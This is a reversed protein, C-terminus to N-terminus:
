ISLVPIQGTWPELTPTDLISQIHANNHGHDYLETYREKKSAQDQARAYGYHLMFLGSSNLHTGKAVYTPESGCGMAKNGWTADPRYAFLRPGRITGWLGDTRYHPVGDVLSFIEPFQLVIGVNGRDEAQSIALDVAMRVNGPHDLVLFEDADFSLVWDGEVPAVLHEMTRWASYRFQGEHELFGPMDGPRVIVYDTYDRAIRVSDDSSRDDWVFLDDFFRYMHELVPRLYRDAEDKMVLSGILRTM